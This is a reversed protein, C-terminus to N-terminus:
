ISPAFGDKMAKFIDTLDAGNNNSAKKLDTFRWTAGEKTGRTYITVSNWEPEVVVLLMTYTEDFIRERTKFDSIPMGHKRTYDKVSQESVVLINSAAGLSVQGTAVAAMINGRKRDMIAQYSGNRDNLLRKRNAEILDQCWVLDRLFEIQGARWLKVRQGLSNDEAGISLIDVVTSPATPAPTLRVTIFLSGEQQEKSSKGSADVTNSRQSYKVGIVKGVALSGLERLDKTSVEANGNIFGSELSTGYAELGPQSTTGPLVKSYSQRSDPSLSETSAKELYDWGLGIFANAADRNPNLSEIRRLVEIANVNLMVNLAQSYYCTFLDLVTSLINPLDSLHLIREDVLVMPEVRCMNAIDTPSRGTLIASGQAVQKAIELPTYFNTTM